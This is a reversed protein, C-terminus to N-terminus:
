HNAIGAVGGGTIDGGGLRRHFMEHVFGMCLRALTPDYRPGEDRLFAHQGNVEIWQFNV